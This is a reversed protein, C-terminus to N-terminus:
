NTSIMFNVTIRAQTEVTEGDSYHPKFHWQRVAEQAAHALIPPGGLVRLDQIAGDRGILAQLIVSGQVKMQRALMPYGPQVAQAVVDGSDASVPVREAANMTTDAATDEKESTSQDAAAPGPQSQDQVQVRISNTGSPVVRHNDGAVVEIELPPLVTRNTITVPEAPAASEPVSKTPQSVKRTRSKGPKASVQRPSQTAHAQVPAPQPLENDAEQVDPFWFDRDRYLVFALAAVLLALAVLM